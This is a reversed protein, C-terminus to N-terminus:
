QLRRKHLKKVMGEFGALFEVADAYDLTPGAGVCMLCLEIVSTFTGRM